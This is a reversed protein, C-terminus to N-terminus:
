AQMRKRESLVFLKGQASIRGDQNLEDPRVIEEWTPANEWSCLEYDKHTHSCEGEHFAPRDCRYSVAFSRLCLHDVTLITLSEPKVVDGQYKQCEAALLQNLYEM